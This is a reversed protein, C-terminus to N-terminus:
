AEPQPDDHEDRSLLNQSPSDTWYGFRTQIRRGALKHFASHLASLLGSTKCALTYRKATDTPPLGSHAYVAETALINLIKERLDDPFERDGTNLLVAEVVPKEIDAVLDLYQEDTLDPHERHINHVAAEREDFFSTMVLEKIRKVEAAVKNKRCAACLRLGDKGVRCRRKDHCVECWAIPRELGAWYGSGKRGM